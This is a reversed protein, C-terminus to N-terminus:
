EELENVAYQDWWRVLRSTGLIMEAETFSTYVTRCSMREAIDTKRRKIYLIIPHLGAPDMDEEVVPYEGEGGSGRKATMGTIRRAARHHFVMLVKLMEGTVM